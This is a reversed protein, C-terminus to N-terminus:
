QTASANTNTGGNSSLVELISLHRPGSSIAMELITQVSTIKDSACSRRVEGRVWFIIMGLGQGNLPIVGMQPGGERPPTKTLYDSWSPYVTPTPLSLYSVTFARGKGVRRGLRGWGKVMVRGLGWWALMYNQKLIM